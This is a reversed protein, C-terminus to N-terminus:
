EEDEDVYLMEDEEDAIDLNRMAQVLGSQAIYFVASFVVLANWGWRM